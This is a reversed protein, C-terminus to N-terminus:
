PRLFGSGGLHREHILVQSIVQNRVIREPFGISVQSRRTTQIRATTGIRSEVIGRLGPLQSTFNLVGVM